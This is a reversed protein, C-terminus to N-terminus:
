QQRSPFYSLASTPHPSRRTRGLELYLGLNSIMMTKQVNYAHAASDSSAVVAAFYSLSPISM